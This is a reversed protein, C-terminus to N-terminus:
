SKGETELNLENWLLMGGKMNYVDKFGNELAFATAQGSRQGSRCIFVITEDKPLESIKQPLYDLTLLEAGPIHGLEGEYEDPRRVDILRVKTKHSVVDEPSIDTVAPFNPNKIKTKFEIKQDM